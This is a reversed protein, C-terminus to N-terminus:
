RTFLVDDGDLSRWGPEPSGTKRQQCRVMYREGIVYTRGEPTQGPEHEPLVRRYGGLPAAPDIQMMVEQALAWLRQEDPTPLKCLKGTTTHVTIGACMLFSAAIHSRWAAWFDPPADRPIDELKAPEDNVWPVRCAPESPSNPGGGNYYEEGDHARRAFDRTRAPHFLGHTGRWYASNEYDGTSWLRGSAQMAPILYHTNISKHTNPENGAEHLVNRSGAATIGEISRKAAELRSADDSTLATRSVLKGRQEMWLLFEIWVEFPAPEWSNGEWGQGGAYDWVRFVRCGPYAAVFAEAEAVRGQRFLDCLNFATAGLWQWPRGDMRFIQQDTSLTGLPPASGGVRYPRLKQFNM